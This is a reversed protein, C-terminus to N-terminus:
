FAWAVRGYVTRPVEIQQNYVFPSFEPHQDDLLNQGVLSLSLGNDFNYAVRTDLRWYSPIVRTVSPNLEDTYYLMTDVEWHEDPTYHSELTIQHNPTLGEGAVFTSGGNVDMEIASYSGSLMLSRSAKWDAAIEFGFTEATSDDGANLPFVPYTGFTVDNRLFPAGLSDSALTIYDHFFVTADLSLNELPQTRYGLEYALMKESDVSDDGIQRILGTGQPTQQAAVAINLDHGPRGPVRIARTFSAWLFNDDNVEWGLRASPQWEFGTYDNYELKTGLTFSVDDHLQVKDQFFASILSDTREAPAYSFFDTGVTDLVQLNYGLGWIINHSDANFSHNFDIDFLQTQDEFIFLDRKTYDYYAKISYENSGENYQWRTLLHGGMVDFKDDVLQRGTTLNPLFFDSNETGQYFESQFSIEGFELESSDVRLGTRWQEWSDNAGTGDALVFNRNHKQKAFIRYYSEDGIKGGHRAATIQEQLGQQYSALNGQTDQASKTIINIVGNMANAGWITGGPGRIVEIREVDEIMTDQINWFVGNFLPTYVLRGDILVLLKNAFQANFGRISIAWQGSGARAVNVGPSLRLAEPLSTAGSRKIDDQTIVHIAATAKGASEERKSISSVQIDGLEALSLSFYDVESAFSNCPLCLSIGLTCCVISLLNQRYASCNM